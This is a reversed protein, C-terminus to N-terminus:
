VPWGAGAALREFADRILVARNDLFQGFDDSALDDFEIGHSALRDRIQQEGLAAADARETLYALPGKASIRRNTRWAILACNLAVSAASEAIDRDRLYSESSITTSAIRLTRRLLGPVTRSTRRAAASHSQSVPERWASV